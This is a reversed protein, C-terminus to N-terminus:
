YIKRRFISKELIINNGIKCCHIDTHSSIEPYLSNNTSIEILKYGMEILKNKEIDRMRNDIFVDM